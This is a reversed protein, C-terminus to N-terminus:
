QSDHYIYTNAKEHLVMQYWVTDRYLYNNCKAIQALCQIQDKFADNRDIAKHEGFYM